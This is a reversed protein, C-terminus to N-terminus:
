RDFVCEKISAKGAADAIAKGVKAAREVKTGSKQALDNAAALTVGQEDDILQAYINTNSRYVALRPRAQTGSVRSRIRAKRRQRLQSKKNM